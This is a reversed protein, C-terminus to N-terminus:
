FVKALGEVGLLHKWSIEANESFGQNPVTIGLYLCKLHLSRRQVFLSNMLSSKKEFILEWKCILSGWAFQGDSNVPRGDPGDVYKFYFRFTIFTVSPYKDSISGSSRKSLSWVATNHTAFSGPYSDNVLVCYDYFTLFIQEVQFWDFNIQFNSSFIWLNEVTKNM